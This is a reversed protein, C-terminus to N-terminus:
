KVFKAAANLLSSTSSTKSTTPVASGVKSLLSNKSTTPVVSSAKPLKGTKKQGLAALADNLSNDKPQKSSYILYIVFGIIGLVVFAGIIVAIWVLFSGVGSQQNVLAQDTSQAVTGLVTTDTFAQTITQNICSTLSTVSANQNWDFDGKYKGCVYVRGENSAAAVNSCNNTINTSIYSTLKNIIETKSIGVNSQISVATALWGQISSGQQQAAQTIATSIDSSFQSTVTNINTANLTCKAAATQGLSIRGEFDTQCPDVKGDLTPIGGIVLTLINNANCNSISNSVIDTVSTNVIDTLEKLAQISVNSQASGM